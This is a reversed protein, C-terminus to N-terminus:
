EMSNSSKSEGKPFRDGFQKILEESAKEEDEENIAKDISSKLSKLSNLVNDKKTESYGEFLDENPYVPKVCKFEEELKDIINTVTGLLSKDDRDDYSYFNKGVLITI